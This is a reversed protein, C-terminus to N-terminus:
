ANTSPRSEKCVLVLAIGIKLGQERGFKILGNKVRAMTSDIKEGLQQSKKANYVLNRLVVRFPYILSESEAILSEEKSYYGVLTNTEGEILRRHLEDLIASKGIGSEGVLLLRTGYKSKLDYLIENIEKDRGIFLSEPTTKTDGNPAIDAM